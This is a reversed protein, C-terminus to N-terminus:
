PYSTRAPPWSSTWPFIRPCLFPTPYMYNLSLGASKVAPYIIGYFFCLLTCRAPLYDEVSWDM